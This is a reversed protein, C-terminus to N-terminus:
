FGYVVPLTLILLQSFQTSLQFIITNVDCITSVVLFRLGSPLTLILLQSFQTSLQFIITNVDHFTSLVLFRLGSSTDSYTVPFVTDLCYNCWSLGFANVFLFGLGHFYVVNKTKRKSIVNKYKNDYSQLSL